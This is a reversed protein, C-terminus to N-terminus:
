VLDGDDHAVASDRGGVPVHMSEAAMCEAEDVGFVFPVPDLEVETGLLPNLVEGICLSFHGM